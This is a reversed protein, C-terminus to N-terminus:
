LLVAREVRITYAVLLQMRHCQRMVAHVCVVTCVHTPHVSSESVVACQLVSMQVDNSCTCPLSYAVASFYQLQYCTRPCKRPCKRGNGFLGGPCNCRYGLQRDKETIDGKSSETVNVIVEQVVAAAAGTNNIVRWQM